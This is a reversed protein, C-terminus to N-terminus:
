LHGQTRLYATVQVISKRLTAVVFDVQERSIVLPPSMVNLHGIPRVLLGQKGAAASIRRSINVEDPFLEKTEKNRVNEVCMMLKKGRVNGVIELDNLTDLQQEFYTGVDTANQLLNEREIIEINKLAAVCSVPHGSYTYGSTFWRDPDGSSIVDHVHDSYIMAGLPLYGSTLGKASTIIDPTVGFESEIAFWHGLRGFATVVEDAVFLIGHKKCVQWMRKLYGNPPMLVGGSAMIPEAFFAGVNDPGIEAIKAEFEAILSDCYDAESMGAPARYFHPASIHHIGQRKFDFLPNQDAAKNGISMTLYTSGHYAQQRSIVQTKDPFGACRQYYGVLRYATDVATSGGTTFHINNLGKPTISAIKQALLASPGNTMDVFTSSYALKVVQEAIADAMESRGLGINTCWMGGIADLYTRGRADTLYCGQGSEVVMAGEREFSDFHAWPHLIHRKDLARLHAEADNRGHEPLM